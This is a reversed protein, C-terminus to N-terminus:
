DWRLLAGVDEAPGAGLAVVRVSAGTGVAARVVAERRRGPRLGHWGLVDGAAESVAIQSPPSGFWAEIDDDPDAALLLTGVQGAALAAITQDFGEVARDHHASAAALAELLDALEREHMEELAEDISETLGGSGDANFREGELVTVLSSLLDPLGDRLMQVARVDGAVFIAGPEHLRALRAVETAVEGANHQWSNEARQQYRHEAWAQWGGAAGRKLPEETATVEVATEAGDRRVVTMDAGRRDTLVVMHPVHRQRARLVPITWPLWEYRASREESAGRRKEHEVFVGGEGTVVAHLTEGWRHADEVFPDVLELLDQPVGDAVLDQRLGHWRMHSRPGANPVAAETTLRVSLFPGSAAVLDSLDLPRRTEM